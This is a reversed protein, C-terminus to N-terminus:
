LLSSLLWFIVIESLPSIEKLILVIGSKLCQIFLPMFYLKTELIADPDVESTDESQNTNFQKLAFLVFTCSRCFKKLDQSGSEKRTCNRKYKICDERVEGTNKVSGSKNKGHNEPILHFVWQTQGLTNMSFHIHKIYEKTQFRPRFRM